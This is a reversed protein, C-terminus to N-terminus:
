PVAPERGRCTMTSTGAVTTRQGQIRVSECRRRPWSCRGSARPSRAGELALNQVQVRGQYCCSYSISTLEVLRRTPRQTARERPAAPATVVAATHFAPFHSRSRCLTAPASRLRDLWARVCPPARTAKVGRLEALAVAPDSARQCASVRSRISLPLTVSRRRAGPTSCWRGRTLRGAVHPGGNM